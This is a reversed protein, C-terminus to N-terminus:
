ASQTSASQSNAYRDPLVPYSRYRCCATVCGPVLHCLRLAYMYGSSSCLCHCEVARVQALPLVATKGAHGPRPSDTLPTATFVESRELIFANFSTLSCESAHNPRDAYPYTLWRACEASVALCLLYTARCGRFLRKSTKDIEAPLASRSAPHRGWSRMIQLATTVLFFTTSCKAGFSPM